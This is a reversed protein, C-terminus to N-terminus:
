AVADRPAILRLPTRQWAARGLQSRWGGYKLRHVVHGLLWLALGVGIRWGLWHASSFDWGNFALTLVGDLFLLGGGIRLVWPALFGFLVLVVIVSALVSGM